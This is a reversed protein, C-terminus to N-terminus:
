AEYDEVDATENEYEEKTLMVVENPAASFIDMLMEKTLQQGECAFYGFDPNGNEDISLGMIKAYTAKEM